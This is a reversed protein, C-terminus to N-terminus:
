ENEDNEKKKERNNPFKFYNQFVAVGAGDWAGEDDGVTGGSVLLTRQAEDPPPQRDITPSIPNALTNAWAPSIVSSDEANEATEVM